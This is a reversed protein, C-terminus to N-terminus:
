YNIDQALNIWKRTNIVKLDIRINDEWSRRSLVLFRKGTLKGALVKFAIRREQMRDVFSSCILITSKIM